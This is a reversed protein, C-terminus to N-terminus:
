LFVKYNVGLIDALRKAMAKGITRNGKEMNSIDAQGINLRTALEVQTLGEKLRAGKLITGAKSYKTFLVEFVKDSPINPGNVTDTIDYAEILEVVSKAKSTPVIFQRTKQSGITIEINASNTLHKKM